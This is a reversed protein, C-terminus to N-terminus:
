PAFLRNYAALLAFDPQGAADLPVRVTYTHTGLDAETRADDAEGAALVTAIAAAACTILAAGTAVGLAFARAPTM